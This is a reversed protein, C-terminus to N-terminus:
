FGYYRVEVITADTYERARAEADGRNEYYSVNGEKDLVFCYLDDDPFPCKIAYRIICEREM